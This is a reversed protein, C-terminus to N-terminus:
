QMSPPFGRKGRKMRTPSSPPSHSGSTNKIEIEGKPNDNNNIAKGKSHQKSFAKFAEHLHNFETLSVSMEM